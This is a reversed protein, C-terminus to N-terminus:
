IAEKGATSIFKLQKPGAASFLQELEYRILPDDNTADDPYIVHM